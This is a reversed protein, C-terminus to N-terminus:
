FEEDRITHLKILLFGLGSIIVSALIVLQGTAYM